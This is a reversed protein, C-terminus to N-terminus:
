ARAVNTVALIVLLAGRSDIDAVVSEDSCIVDSLHFRSERFLRQRDADIGVVHLELEVPVTHEVVLHAASIQVVSNEDSAPPLVVVGLLVVPEQFVRPVGGPAVLAVHLDCDLIAFTDTANM